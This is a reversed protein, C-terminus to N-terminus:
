PSTNSNVSLRLENTIKESRQCAFKSKSKSISYSIKLNHHKWILFVRLLSSTKPSTKQQLIKFVGILVLLLFYIEEFIPLIECQLSLRLPDGVDVIFSLQQWAWGGVWSYGLQPNLKTKKEVLGVVWWSVPFTHYVSIQTICPLKALSLRAWCCTLEARSLKVKRWGGM